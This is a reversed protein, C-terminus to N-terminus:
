GLQEQKDVQFCGAAGRDCPATQRRSDGKSKSKLQYTTVPSRIVAPPNATLAQHQPPSPRVQVASTIGLFAACRREFCLVPKTQKARRQRASMRMDTKGALIVRKSSASELDARYAVVFYSVLDRFAYPMVRAFYEFFSTGRIM